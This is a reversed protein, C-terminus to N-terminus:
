AERGFLDYFSAYYSAMLLPLVVILGLFVPIMGVILLLTGLIGYVLFPLWNSLCARFSEKMAAAAGLDTYLVLGPAYWYAAAVLTMVALFALLLVLLGAVGGGNMFTNIIGDFNGETLASLGGLMFFAAGAFAVLVAVVLLFYVLAVAVLAGSKQKLGIFLKGLDAPEGQAIGHGFALLGAMLFPGVFISVVNGVLPILGLVLQVGILIVLAVVWMVPAAKFLAWGESIWSAGRGASLRAAPAAFVTEEGAPPLDAVVATPPSYPNDTTSM